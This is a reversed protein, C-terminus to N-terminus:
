RSVCIYPILFRTLILRDAPCPYLISVHVPPLSIPTPSSSYQPQCIYVTSLRETMGSEKHGGHVAARWAGRDTCNELCSDQCPNGNRVGPNTLVLSKLQSSRWLIYVVMHLVSLQHSGGSYLVPLEDQARHSRSLHFPHSTWVPSPMHICVSMCCVTSQQVASVLM